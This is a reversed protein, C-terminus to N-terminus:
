YRLLSGQNRYNELFDRTSIVQWGFQLGNEIDDRNIAVAFRIKPWALELKAGIGGFDDELYYGIEPIHYHETRCSHLVGLVGPDALKMVSYWSDGILSQENRLQIITQRDRQSVYMHEHFNQKSHCDVCLAKLNAESNDSKVGNIHHVHLLNRHDKLGVLCEECIFKKEVRYHASIKPWDNTYGEKTDEAKRKPMHPFFSSYTQFFEAMYFSNFVAVKKRETSYGKYNLQSLCLKCIKLPVKTEKGYNGSILFQGSTDNTVVYREFRGSGRMEKLKSCDAVHFKNGKEPNHVANNFYSGHDKIYLLIQRGEYSLLGDEVDVQSIDVDKGEALELDIKDITTEVFKINFQGPKEAGMKDIASKLATFNINLKL